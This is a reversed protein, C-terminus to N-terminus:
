LTELLGTKALVASNQLALITGIHKSKQEQKTKTRDKQDKM